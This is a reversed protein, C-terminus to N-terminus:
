GGDFKPRYWKVSGAVADIKEGDNKTDERWGPNDM